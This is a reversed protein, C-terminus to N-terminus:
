LSINLGANFALSLGYLNQNLFPRSQYIYQVYNESVNIVFRTNYSVFYNAGVSINIGSYIGSENDYISYGNQGNLSFGIVTRTNPYFNYRIFYDAGFRKGNPNNGIDSILSDNTYYKSTRKNELYSVNTAIGYEFQNVLNIPRYKEFGIRLAIEKEFYSNVNKNTPAMFQEAVIKNNRLRPIIKIYKITGAQRYFNNAFFIVDNLNTFYKIDTKNVVNKSQLYTDVRTLIYQIRKRGDLIRFNNSQTIVKALDNVEDKTLKRNLNKDDQLITALWLANQMDTINELRGKGVGITFNIDVNKDSRADEEIIGRIIKNNRTNIEAKISAGLEIFNNEAYWKNNINISPVVYIQKYKNSSTVSNDTRSSFNGAVGSSITRYIKDTSKISFFNVNLGGDISRSGGYGAYNNNSQGDTNFGLDLAKYKNIRYKYDKLLQKDQSFAVFSLFLLTFALLKKRMFLNEVFKNL